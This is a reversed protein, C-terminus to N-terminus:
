HTTIRYVGGGVTGAYLWQGDPSADLRGERDPWRGPQRVPREVTADGGAELEAEDHGAFQAGSM